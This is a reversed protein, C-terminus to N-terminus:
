FSEGEVRNGGSQRAVALNEMIRRLMDEPTDEIGALTAVGVSVTCGINGTAFPLELDSALRRVREGALLAQDHNTEPLFLVLQDDSFRALFDATRKMRHLETVLHRLLQDGGDWSHLDNIGSFDDIDILLMSCVGDYRQAQAINQELVPMLARRNYAGTLPDRQAQSTIRRELKKRDNINRLSWILQNSDTVIMRSHFWIVEKLGLAKFAHQHDPRFVLENKVVQGQIRATEIYGRLLTLYDTPFLDELLKGPLESVLLWDEDGPSVRIIKEDEIVLVLDSTLALLANFSDTLRNQEESM